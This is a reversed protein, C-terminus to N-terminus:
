KTASLFATRFKTVHDVLRKELDKSIEKKTRIEDLVDKANGDFYSLLEAEFQRMKEVPVDIIFMGEPWKKPDKYEDNMPKTPFTATWMAIVQREVGQPAYQPQKLLEMLRQGIDLERKTTADLDSGFQAFASRGGKM